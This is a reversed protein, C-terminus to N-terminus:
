LDIKNGDKDVLYRQELCLNFKPVKAEFQPIDEKNVVRDPYCRTSNDIEKKNNIIEYINALNEWFNM